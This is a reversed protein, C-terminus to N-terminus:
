TRLFLGLKRTWKRTGQKPGINIREILNALFSRRRTINALQFKSSFEDLIKRVKAPDLNISEGHKERLFELEGELHEKERSVDQVMEDLVQKDIKRESYLEIMRSLQVRLKGIKKEVRSVEQSSHGRRKEISQQIDEVIESLKQFSLVEKSLISVVIEDLVEYKIKNMACDNKKNKAGACVYYGSDGVMSNGCSECKLLGSLLYDNKRRPSCERIRHRYREQIKKALEETILAPHANAKVIWENRDRWKNGGVFTGDVRENQRNFVLHGLYTDLNGEVCTLSNSPWKKKGTPSPIGRREFDRIVSGRSEGSAIREFYESVIPATEPDPELTSKIIPQNDLDKGVVHKKLRYGFPARGGARYGQLINEKMGRLAGEKSKDSHLEDFIEFIGEIIKDVYSDSKPLKLFALEIGHKRLIAKYIAAHERQRTFRSTDYCVIKKFPSSQQKALSIMRQFAPRDDYKASLSDDVFEEVVIEEKKQALERLERLQSEISVDNRDKSSRAYLAVRLMKKM